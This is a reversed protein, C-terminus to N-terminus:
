LDSIRWGWKGCGAGGVSLCGMSSLDGKRESMSARKVLSTNFYERGSYELDFPVKHLTFNSNAKCHWNDHGVVYSGSISKNNFRENKFTAWTSFWDYCLCSIVIVRAYVHMWARM